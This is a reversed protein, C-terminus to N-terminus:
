LRLLRCDKERGADANLNIAQFHYDVYTALLRMVLPRVEDMTPMSESALRTPLWGIALCPRLFDSLHRNLMTTSIFTQSIPSNAGGPFLIRMLRIVISSLLSYSEPTTTLDIIQSSAGVTPPPNSPWASTIHGLLPDSGWKFVISILTRIETLDRIGLLVETSSSSAEAVNADTDSYLANQVRELVNIAEKATELEVEELSYQELPGVKIGLHKHYKDLRSLLTSKLDRAPSSRSDVLLSGATLINTLEAKRAM